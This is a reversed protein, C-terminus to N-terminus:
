AQLTSTHDHTEVSEPKGEPCPFAGTGGVTQARSFHEQFVACPKKLAKRTNTGTRFTRGVGHRRELNTWSEM